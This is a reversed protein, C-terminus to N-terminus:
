HSMQLLRGSISTFGEYFLKQQDLLTLSTQGGCKSLYAMLRHVCFLSNRGRRPRDAYLDDDGSLRSEEALDQGALEIVLGAEGDHAAGRVAIVQPFHQRPFFRPNKKEIEVTQAGIRLVHHM